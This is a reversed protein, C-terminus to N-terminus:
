KKFGRIWDDFGKKHAEITNAPGTLKIHYVVEEPGRFQIALMRYGPRNAPKPNAKSPMPKFTGSVDLMTAGLGGIKIESVKAVDDIKKGAPPIFQGKWRAVNEEVKGGLGQFIALEADETDGKAKPLRFQAYRFLSPKEEKWTAPTQSKLGDLNVVTGKADALAAGGTLAGVGLVVVALAWRM